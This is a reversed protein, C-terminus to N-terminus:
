PTELAVPVDLESTDLFYAAIAYGLLVTAFTHFGPTGINPQAVLPFGALSGALPVVINAVVSPTRFALEVHM